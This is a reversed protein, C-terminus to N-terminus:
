RCEYFSSPGYYVGDSSGYTAQRIRLSLEKGTGRQRVYKAELGRQWEKGNSNLATNDGSGNVYSDLFSLGPVGFTAMNIDYRAQYSKEGEANFDSRAISNALFVTGGGDVGYGYDGDGTVKQAALPFTHAGITYARQLSSARNDLKTM